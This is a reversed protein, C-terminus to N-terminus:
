GSEFGDGCASRAAASNASAGLCGLVDLASFRPLRNPNGIPAFFFGALFSWNSSVSELREDPPAGATTDAARISDGVLMNRRIPSSSSAASAAFSASSLWVEDGELM